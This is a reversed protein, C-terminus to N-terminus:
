FAETRPKGIRADCDTVALVRRATAKMPGTAIRIRKSTASQALKWCLEAVRLSRPFSHVIHFENSLFFEIIILKNM